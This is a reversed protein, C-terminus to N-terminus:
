WVQTLKQPNEITEIQDLSVDDLVDILKPNM